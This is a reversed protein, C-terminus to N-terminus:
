ICHRFTSLDTTYKGMDVVLSAGSDRADAYAVSLAAQHPGAYPIWGQDGKVEWLASDRVPSPTGCMECALFDTRTNIFTCVNCTWGASAM